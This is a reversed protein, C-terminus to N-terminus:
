DHQFERINEGMLQKRYQRWGPAFNGNEDPNMWGVGAMYVDPCAQHEAPSAHLPKGAVLKDHLEIDAQLTPEAGDHLKYSTRACRAVSKKILDHPHPRIAHECPRVYPLHWQGVKLEQPVSARRAEYMQKALEQMEPLADPHYRLAFFNEYETASIVVTIHAFPEILRNVVQKHYGSKAFGEATELARDMANLWASEPRNFVVSRTIDERRVEVPDCIEAGAQMGRQNAGWHMPIAPDKRIDAIMKAVPIARSSSANRSFMRHTM